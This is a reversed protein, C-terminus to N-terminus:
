NNISVPVYEAVSILNDWGFWRGYGNVFEASAGPGGGSYNVVEVVVASEPYTSSVREHDLVCTLL